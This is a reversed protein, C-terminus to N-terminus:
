IVWASYVLLHREAADAVSQRVVSGSKTKLQKAYMM